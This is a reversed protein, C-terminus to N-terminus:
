LHYPAHPEIFLRHTVWAVLAALLVVGLFAAFAGLAHWYSPSEGGSQYVAGSVRHALQLVESHLSGLEAECAVSTQM